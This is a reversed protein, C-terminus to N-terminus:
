SISHHTLGKRTKCRIFYFFFTSSIYFFSFNHSFHFFPLCDSLCASLRSTIPLSFNLYFALTCTVKACSQLMFFHFYFSTHERHSICRAFNTWLWQTEQNSNNHRDVRFEAASANVTAECLFVSVFVWVGWVHLHIERNNNCDHKKECSLLYHM